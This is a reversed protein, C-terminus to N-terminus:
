DKPRYIFQPENDIWVDIKIGREKMYDQKARKSTYFIGDTRTALLANLIYNDVEDPYRSTVLYVENEHLRMTSIIQNWLKPDLDYTGDYDIAIKM